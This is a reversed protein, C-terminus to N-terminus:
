HLRIYDIALIPHFKTSQTATPTICVPNLWAQAPPNIGISSNSAVTLSSTSGFRASLSPFVGSMKAAWAPWDTEREREIRWYILIRKNSRGTPPASYESWGTQTDTPTDTHRDTRPCIEPVPPGIPVVNQVCIGQPRPKTTRRRRQAVNHVESKISSRVNPRLPRLYHCFWKPTKGTWPTCDSSTDM